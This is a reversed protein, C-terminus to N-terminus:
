SSLGEGNCISCQTQYKHLAADSKLSLRSLPLDITIATVRASEYTISFRHGNGNTVGVRRVRENREDYYDHVRRILHHNESNIRPGFQLPFYRSWVQRTPQAANALSVIYTLGNCADKRRELAFKVCMQSAVIIWVTMSVTSSKPINSTKNLFRRQLARANYLRQRANQADALM